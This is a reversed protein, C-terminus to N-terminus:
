VCLFFGALQSSAPEFSLLVSHGDHQCPIIIATNPSQMLSSSTHNSDQFTSGALGGPFERSGQEALDTRRRIAECFVMGAIVLAVPKLNV